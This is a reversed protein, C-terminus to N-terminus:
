YNLLVLVQASAHAAFHGSKKILGHFSFHRLAFTVHYQVLAGRKAHLKFPEAIALHEDDEIIFELRKTFHEVLVVSNRRCGDLPLGRMHIRHSAYANSDQVLSLSFVTPLFCLATPLLSM